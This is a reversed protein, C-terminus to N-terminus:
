EDSLARVADLMQGRSRVCAELSRLLGQLRQECSALVAAHADVETPDAIGSGNAPGATIQDLEALIASFGDLLHGTAERMQAQATGIHTTWLLAAEALREGIGSADPSSAPRRSPRWWRVTGGSGDPRSPEGGSLANPILSV